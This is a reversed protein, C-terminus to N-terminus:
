SAAMLRARAHLHHQRRDGRDRGDCVGRDLLTRRRGYLARRARVCRRHVSRDRPRPRATGPRGRAAASTQLAILGTIPVAVVAAAFAALRDAGGARVRGSTARGTLPALDHAAVPTGTLISAVAARHRRGRRGRRVGGGSVPAATTCSEATYSTSGVWDILESRSDAPRRRGGPSRRRVHGRRQSYRRRRRRSWGLLPENGARPSWSWRPRRGDTRGHDAPPAPRDPRRRRDDGGQEVGAAIGVVRPVTRLTEIPISITRREWEDQVFSGDLRVLHGAVDGVAGKGTLRRPGRRRPSGHGHRLRAHFAARREHGVLALRLSGGSAPRPPSPATPSCPPPPPRTTSCARPTSCGCRRGSGSPWTAPSRTATSTRTARIGAAWSRCSSPARARGRGAARGRAIRGHLRRDPRDRRREPLEEALRPAAAVGCLRAALAPATEHGPTVWAEVGLAASLPGHWRRRSPRRARSPSASSARPDPRALLRSVKSISFGTLTAIEPQGLSRVYYLEAVLRMMERQSTPTPRRGDRRLRDRRRASADAVAAPSREGAGTRSACRGPRQGVTGDSRGRYAM